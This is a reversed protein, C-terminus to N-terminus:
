KRLRSAETIPIMGETPVYVVQAIHGERLAEGFSAMFEQQRYEPFDKAAQGMIQIAKARHSAAEEEARAQTILIQRTQEARALNAEGAKGQQWVNYVPMGAMLGGIVIVAFLVLIMVVAFFTADGRQYKM